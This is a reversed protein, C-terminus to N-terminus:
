TEVEAAAAWIWREGGASASIRYWFVVEVGTMALKAPLALVLANVTNGNVTGCAKLIAPFGGKGESVSSILALNCVVVTNAVIFSYFVSGIVFVWTPSLDTATFAFAVCLLTFSASNAAVLLFLNYIHTLLLNFFSSTYPNQEFSHRNVSRNELYKLSHITSSKSLLLFFSLPLTSFSSYLTQSLKLLLFNSTPLEIPFGAAAIAAHLRGHLASSAASSHLHLLLSLSFPLALLTPTSTFHHLYTLFAHISKRLIKM